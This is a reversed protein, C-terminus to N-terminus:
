KERDIKCGYHWYEKIGNKDHVDNGSKVHVCLKWGLPSRLYPVFCSDDNGLIKITHNPLLLIKIKNTINKLFLYSKITNKKILLCDFM